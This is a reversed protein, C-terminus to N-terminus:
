KSQMLWMMHNKSGERTDLFIYLVTWLMNGSLTEQSTMALKFMYLLCLLVHLLYLKLDATSCKGLM